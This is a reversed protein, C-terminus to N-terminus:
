DPQILFRMGSDTLTSALKEAYGETFHWIVTSDDMWPTQATIEYPGLLTVETVTYEPEAVDEAAPDLPQGDAPMEAAADAEGLEGDYTLDVTEHEESPDTGSRLAPRTWWVAVDYLAASAVSRGEAALSERLLAFEEECNDPDIAVATLSLEDAPYPLSDYAATLTLVAGDEAFATLVVDEYAPEGTGAGEGEPPVTEPEGTDATQGDYGPLGADPDEPAPDSREGPYGPSEPSEGDLTVTGEGAEPDAGEGDKGPVGENDLTVFEPDPEAQKPNKPLALYGAISPYDREFDELHVPVQTGGWITRIADEFVETVIAVRDALGDDDDDFFVLDGPLPEGDAELWLEEQARVANMWNAPVSDTPVGWIGAYHMCFMAYIANWGAYRVGYWDGYYTYGHRVNFEDTVFNKESEGYDLQSQAIAILDEAWNGTLEVDCFTSEWDLQTFVDETPDGTLKPFCADTHVHEEKTCILEEEELYCLSNHEHGVGPEEECVFVPVLQWCEDTHEHEPDDNECVLEEQWRICEETHVHIENEPLTCVLVKEEEFCEDTHVHEPDDELGCICRSVIEWCSEDHIHGPSEARKCIQVQVKGYCEASHEHEEMGCLPEYEQTTAPNILLMVTTVATALAFFLFLGKQWRRKERVVVDSGTRIVDM